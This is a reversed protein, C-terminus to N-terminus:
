LNNWIANAYNPIDIFPNRNGQIEYTRHNRRIEFNSVPDENHWELLLAYAAEPTGESTYIINTVPTTEGKYRVLLYMIIRAVDGKVRDTPEFVGESIVQGDLYGYLTGNEATAKTGDIENYYKALTDRNEVEGYKSNNRSKNISAIEPRLHHLDSGGHRSSASPANPGWWSHSTCWVHERNWATGNGWESEFNIGTYFDVFKTEDTPSADSYPHGKEVYRLEGYSVLGKTPVTVEQLNTWLTEGKYSNDVSAYYTSITNKIEDIETATLGGNDPNTTDSDDEEYVDMVSYLTTTDGSLPPTVNQSSSVLQSTTSSDSNSVSNSSQNSSVLQSSTPDKQLYGDVIDKLPGFFYLCGLTIALIVIIILVTIAFKKPEKKAYKVIKKRAKKAVKKVKRKTKKDM